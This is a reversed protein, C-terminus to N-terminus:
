HSGAASKRTGHAPFAVISGNRSANACLGCAACSTDLYTAPCIALQHGAPTRHDLSKTRRKYDSLTEAWVTRKGKSKAKRGYESPVVTVVDFGHKVLQDAHAPSNSSLNVHLGDEDRAKRLATLNAPTPPKHTYLITRKDRGAASILALGDPDIANGQGPLDGAQGYRWLSGAPLAAIPALVEALTGGREGETVKGWHLALPGSEAYCGGGGKLPCVDPCTQKSATIVPIPGTKKNSSRLTIHYNTETM